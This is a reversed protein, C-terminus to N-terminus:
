DSRLEYLHQNKGCKSCVFDGKLISQLMQSVEHLNELQEKTPNMGDLQLVKKLQEMQKEKSKEGKQKM